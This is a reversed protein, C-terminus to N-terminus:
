GAENFAFSADANRKLPMWASSEAVEHLRLKKKILVPVSSTKELHSRLLELRARDKGLRSVFIHEDQLDRITTDEPVGDNREETPIHAKRRTYLVILDKGVSDLEHITSSVAALLTEHFEDPKRVGNVIAALIPTYWLLQDEVSDESAM